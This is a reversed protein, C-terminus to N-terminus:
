VKDDVYLFYLLVIIILILGGIVFELGLSFSIVICIAVFGFISLSLKVRKVKGQREVGDLAKNMGIVLEEQDNEKYNEEIETILTLISYNVKNKQAQDFPLNLNEKTKIEYFQSSLNILQQSHDDSLNPSLESLIRLVNEIKNKSVMLKLKELESEM